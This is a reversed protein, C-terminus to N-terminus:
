ERLGVATHLNARLQRAPTAHPRRDPHQPRIDVRDAPRLAALDVNHLSDPVLRVLHERRNVPKPMLFALVGREAAIQFILRGRVIKMNVCHLPENVAHVEVVVLGKVEGIRDLLRPRAAFVRKVLRM